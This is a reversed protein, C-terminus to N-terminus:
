APHGHRSATRGTAGNATVAGDDGGIDISRVFVFVIAAGIVAVAALFAYFWPNRTPSGEDYNDYYDPEPPPDPPSRQLLGQPPRARGPPLPRGQFRDRSRRRDTGDPM